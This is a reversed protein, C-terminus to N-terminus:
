KYVRVEGAADFQPLNFNPFKTSLRLVRAVATNYGQRMNTKVPQPEMQLLKRNEYAIKKERVTSLQHRTEAREFLKILLLKSSFLPRPL